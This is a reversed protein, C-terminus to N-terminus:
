QIKKISMEFAEAVDMGKIVIRNYLTQHRIGLEKAWATLTQIKGNYELLRKQNKRQINEVRENNQTIKSAESANEEETQVNIEAEIISEETVNQFEGTINMTVEEIQRNNEIAEILQSKRMVWWKDLNMEKAIEKLEAVKMNKLDGTMDVTVENEFTTGYNIEIM